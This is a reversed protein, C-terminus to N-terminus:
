SRPAGFPLGALAALLGSISIAAWVLFLEPWYTMTVHNAGPNLMVGRFAGNTMYLRGPKGNVAVNWGPYLVESTALFAPGAAVVNLEIRNPSYLEVTVVGGALAEVPQLDQAEVVAEEAPKFDPRALYSFTDAAGNSIHLRHVLFFRPLPSSTRYFRLGGFDGALEGLSNSFKAATEPLQAALYGVSLMSVLPSGPRNVPLKRLWYYGGCFLRRLSRIRQLMFPNDGNATPIKLIESGQVFRWASIDLYDVRLPPNTVDVLKQVSALDGPHGGILYESNEKKYGGPMANMARDSGFYTLDLATVLAISWMVVTPIRYALRQLVLASTLAMFMCFAMLAFEAYLAGRVFRPLHTYVFRYLPTEDGLMWVASIITFLFFMRLQTWRLFPALLVLVLPILGCYIYLFTFNFPLKYQAPDFPTFIHYYNPIMLSVLSQFYLGGGTVHWDSRMSAISLRGLQYTPVIQIAAIAHGLVFGALIAGAAKWKPKPWICLGLVMLVAAGFTVFAAAPFGSLVTLAVSLALIAAWRLTVANALKWVCLLVLPLWAGCCIAGLHQAQSAFYGGLQYVTGGLLAAPLSAGLQRLLFFTFVGALIMHLPDLWEIWYFLKLGGSHNGLLIAIWTFPYFLQATIDAHIPVGCYPYPDWFPFVGQRVCRAIYTALPLHFSEIDFPIHSQPNFLVTRFFVLPQTILLLLAGASSYSEPLIRRRARLSQAPTQNQILRLIIAPQPKSGLSRDRV